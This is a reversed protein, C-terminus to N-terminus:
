KKSMISKLKMINNVPSPNVKYMIALYFSIWDIYHIMSFVREIESDGKLNLEIQESFQMLIELGQRHILIQM